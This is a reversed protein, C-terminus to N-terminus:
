SMIMNLLRIIFSHSKKMGSEGRNDQKESIDLKLSELKKVLPIFYRLNNSM